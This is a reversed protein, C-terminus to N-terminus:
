EHGSYLESRIFSAGIGGLFAEFRSILGLSDM